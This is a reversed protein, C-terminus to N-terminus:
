AIQNAPKQDGRPPAPPPSAATTPLFLQVLEERYPALKDRYRGVLAALSKQDIREITELEALLEDALNEIQTAVRCAAPFREGPKLISNLITLVTVALSVWAVAPQLSAFAEKAGLATSVFASLLPIALLVFLASWKYGRVKRVAWARNDDIAKLLDRLPYFDGAFGRRVLISTTREELLGGM